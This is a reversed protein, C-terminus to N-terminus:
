AVGPAFRASFREVVLDHLAPPLHADLYGRLNPEEMAQRRLVAAGLRAPLRADGPARTLRISGDPSTMPLFSTHANVAADLQFIRAALAYARLQQLNELHQLREFPWPSLRAVMAPHYALLNDQYARELERPLPEGRVADLPRVPQYLTDYRATAVGACLEARAAAWAAARTWTPELHVRPAAMLPHARLDDVFARFARLMGEWAPRDEGEASAGGMVFLFLPHGTRAAYELWIATEVAIQLSVGPAGEPLAHDLCPGGCVLREAGALPWAATTAVVGPTHDPAATTAYTAHFWELTRGYMRRVADAPELAPSPVSPASM